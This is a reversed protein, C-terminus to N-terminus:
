EKATDYRSLNSRLRDRDNMEPGPALFFRLSSTCKEFMAHYVWRGFTMDGTSSM